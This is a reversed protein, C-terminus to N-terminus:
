PGIIPHLAYADLMPIDGEDGSLDGDDDNIDRATALSLHGGTGRKSRGTVDQVVLDHELCAFSILTAHTEDLVRREISTLNVIPKPSIKFFVRAREDIKANQIIGRGMLNLLTDELNTISPFIQMMYDLSVCQYPRLYELLCKEKIMTSLTTWKSGSLYLDGEPVINGSGANTFLEIFKPYNARHWQLLLEKMTPVLELAEPHEAFELISSRPMTALSLISAYLAIDEASIVGPWELKTSTTSMTLKVFITATTTYDGQAMSELGRAIKLKIAVDHLVESTADPSTTSATGRRGGLTQEMKSLYEKVQTYAQVAFCVELILLSIQATQVRTSCFDTTRLLTNLGNWLHGTKIDFQAL